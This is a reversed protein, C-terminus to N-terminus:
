QARKKLGLSYTYVATQLCSEALYHSTSIEANGVSQSSSIVVYNKIKEFGLYVEQSRSSAASVPVLTSM